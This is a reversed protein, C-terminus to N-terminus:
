NKLKKNLDEDDEDVSLYKQVNWKHIISFYPQNKGINLAEKMTQPLPHDLTEPLFTALLTAFLGFGFWIYFPM